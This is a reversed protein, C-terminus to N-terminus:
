RWKRCTKQIPTSRGSWGGEGQCLNVGPPKQSLKGSVANGLGRDDGTSNEWRFGHQTVHAFAKAFISRIRCTQASISGVMRPEIQVNSALCTRRFRVSAGDSSAQNCSTMSTDDVVIRSDSLSGVATPRM